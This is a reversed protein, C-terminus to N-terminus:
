GADGNKRSQEDRRLYSEGFGHEFVGVVTDQRYERCFTVYENSDAVVEYTWCGDPVGVRTEEEVGNIRMYPYCDTLTLVERERTPIRAWEIRSYYAGDAMGEEAILDCELREGYQNGVVGDDGCAHLVTVAFLSVFRTM